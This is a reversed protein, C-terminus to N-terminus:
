ADTAQDKGLGVALGSAAEPTGDWACLRSEGLDEIQPDFM